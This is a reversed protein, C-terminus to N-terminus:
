RLDLFCTVHSQPAAPDTGMLRSNGVSAAWPHPVAAESTLQPASTIRDWGM